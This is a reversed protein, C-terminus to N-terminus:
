EQFEKYLNAVVTFYRVGRIGDPHRVFIFEQGDRGVDFSSYPTVGLSEIEFLPGEGKIAFTPGDEMELAM